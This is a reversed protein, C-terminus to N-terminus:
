VISRLLSCRMYSNNHRRTTKVAYLPQTNISVKTKLTWNGEAVSWGLSEGGCVMVGSRVLTAVCSGKAGLVTLQSARSM